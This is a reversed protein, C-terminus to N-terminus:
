KFLAYYSVPRTTRRRLHDPSLKFGFGRVTAISHYFLTTHPNFGILFRLHVAYLHGHLCSYRFVPHSNRDGFVWPKRPFTRGGLTLRIRLRPRLAYDISLLNINRHRRSPTISPRPLSSRGDISLSPGLGYPTRYTFGGFMLGSLQHSMLGVPRTSRDVGRRCSFRRFSSITGVTGYVSVPPRPSFGLARSLFWTLSSPLNAGYSRFFPRRRAHHSKSGSRPVAATFLGLRSNLLFM